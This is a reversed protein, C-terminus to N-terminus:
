PIANFIPMIIFLFNYKGIDTEVQWVILTAHRRKEKKLKHGNVCVVFVQLLFSWVESCTVTTAEVKIMFISLHGQM